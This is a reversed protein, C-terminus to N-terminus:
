HGIENINRFIFYIPIRGAHLTDINILKNNEEYLNPILCYNSDIRSLFLKNFAIFATKSLISIQHNEIAIKVTDRIEGKCNENVYEMMSDSLIKIEFNDFRGHMASYSGKIKYATDPLSIKEFRKYFQSNFACGILLVPILILIKKM